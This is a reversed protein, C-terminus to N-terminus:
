ASVTLLCNGNGMDKLEASCWSLACTAKLESFEINTQLTTSWGAWEKGWAVITKGNDASTIYPSINEEKESCSSFTAMAVITVVVAATMLFINKKM